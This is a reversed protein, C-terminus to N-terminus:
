NIELYIEILSNIEPIIKIQLCLNLLIVFM